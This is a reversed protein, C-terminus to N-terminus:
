RENDVHCTLAETILHRIRGPLAHPLFLIRVFKISYHILIPLKM